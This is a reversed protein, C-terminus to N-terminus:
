GGAHERALTLLNSLQRSGHRGAPLCEAIASICAVKCSGVSIMRCSGTCFDNQVYTLAEPVTAGLGSHMAALPWVM